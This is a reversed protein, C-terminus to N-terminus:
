GYELATYFRAQAVRNIGWDILLAFFFGRAVKNHTL